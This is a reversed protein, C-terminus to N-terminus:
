LLDLYPAFFGFFYVVTLILFTFILDKFNIFEEKLLYKDPNSKLFKVSRYIESIKEEELCGSSFVVLILASLLLIRLPSM